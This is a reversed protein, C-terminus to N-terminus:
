KTDRPGLSALLAGARALLGSPADIDVSLMRLKKRAEEVKGQRLDLMALQEQALASWANGPEALPKLRAELQGPEGRDLERQTALLSALDRLLRDAGPDGAVQDWLAIAGPLDGADAKLGAARLRALTKYGEPGAAALQDLAALGPAGTANSGDAAVYRVAAAIDQRTQYRNWLQWGGAGAVIAVALAVILWAYKKLLKEAREARLDEEVEDFIDVVQIREGAQVQWPVRHAPPPGYRRRPTAAFRTSPLPENVKLACFPPIFIIRKAPKSGKAPHPQGSGRIAVASAPAVIALTAVIWRV